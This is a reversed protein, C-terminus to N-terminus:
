VDAFFVDMSPKAKGDPIYWQDYLEIVRPFTAPDRPAYVSDGEMMGVSRLKSLDVLSTPVVSPGLGRGCGTSKYVEYGVRRVRGDAWQIAPILSDYPDFASAGPVLSYYTVIKKYGTVVQIGPFSSTTQFYSFGELTRGSPKRKQFVGVTDYLIKYDYFWSAGLSKTIV